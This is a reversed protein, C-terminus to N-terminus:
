SEALFKFLTLEFWRAAVTFTEARDFFILIRNEVFLTRRRVGAASPEVARSAKTRGRRDESVIALFRFLPLESWQAAVTFTEDQDFFM